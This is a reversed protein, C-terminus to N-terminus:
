TGRSQLVVFPSYSYNGDKSALTTMWPSRIDYRRYFRFATQLTTFQVHESVDVYVEPHEATVLQKLDTLIIDGANGLQPCNMCEIVPKGFIRLPYKEDAANYTIGGFAPYTTASGTAPEFVMATLATFGEPNVIWCANARSAPYISRFMNALDRFGFMSASDNSSQTVTVLAPQNLIGLPQQSGSGNIVADNEQWLLELGALEKIKTDFSEINADQLLQNTVYVLVVNTNLTLTQQTMAPYSSTLAAAEAVWYGLVGGHRQGDALGTENIENINLQNGSISYRDTKEVLKPYERVKDWVERYWEPKIFFGGQTNTGENAGLPAKKRIEEGYAAMKMIAQRNGHRSAVATRLMDGLSKFVPQAVQAPVRVTPVIGKNSVAKKAQSVLKGELKNFASSVARTIAAEMEPAGADTQEQEQGEDEDDGSVDEETAEALIGADVLPQAKEPDLPIVDGEKNEGFDQEFVYHVLAMKGRVILLCSKNGTSQEGSHWGNVIALM